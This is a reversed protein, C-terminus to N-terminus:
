TNAHQRRIKLEIVKRFKYFVFLILFARLGFGSFFFPEKVEVALLILMIVFLMRNDKCTKYLMFVLLFYMVIALPLGVSLITRIYGSDTWPSFFGIGYFGYGSLLHFDKPIFWYSDIVSLTAENDLGQKGDFLFGISYWFVNSDFKELFYASIYDAFLYLLLSLFSLPLILKPSKIFYYVSTVLVIFIGTRGVFFLTVFFLVLLAFLFLANFAKINEASLKEFLIVCTIGYLVSLGAGGASAIGRFKFGDVYSVNFQVLYGDILERFSPLFFSFVIVLSNIGSACIVANIVQENSIGSHVAFILLGISILYMAIYSFIVFSHHYQYEVFFISIFSGYTAIVFLVSLIGLDYIISKPFVGKLIVLTYFILFIGVVIDPRGYITYPALVLFLVATYFLVIKVISPNKM